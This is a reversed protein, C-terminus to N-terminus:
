SLTSRLRAVTRWLKFSNFMMRGQPRLDPVVILSFTAISYSLLTSAAAGLSGYRPILLFSLGINVVAGAITRYLAVISRNEAILYQSSAINLFVPVSAWIYVALVPGAQTYQSGFLIAIIWTSFFSTVAAVSISILSMINYFMELRRQYVDADELKAKVVSPFVSAAISIPIFYWMEALRVAVSYIGVEHDGLISGIMVQGIRM